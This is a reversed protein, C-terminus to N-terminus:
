ERGHIGGTDAEQAANQEDCGRQRSPRIATPRVASAILGLIRTKSAPPRFNRRLILFDKRTMTGFAAAAKAGAPSRGRKARADAGFLLEGAPCLRRANKMLCTGTGPLVVFEAQDFCRRLQQASELSVARDRDGWLLLAPFQRVHKLASELKGMDDFWTKLM